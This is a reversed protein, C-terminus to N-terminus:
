DLAADVIDSTIDGLILFVMPLTPTVDALLVGSEGFSDTSITDKFDGISFL